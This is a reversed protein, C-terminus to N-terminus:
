KLCVLGFRYTVKSPPWELVINVNRATEDTNVGAGTMSYRMKIPYRCPMNSQYTCEIGEKECIKCKEPWLILSESYFEDLDKLFQEIEECTKQNILDHIM